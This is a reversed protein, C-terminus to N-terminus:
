APWARPSVASRLCPPEAVDVVRLRRPNARASNRLPDAAPERLLFAGAAAREDVDAHMREIGRPIQHSRRPRNRDARLNIPVELVEHLVRDEIDLIRRESKNAELVARDHM